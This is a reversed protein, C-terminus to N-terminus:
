KKPLMQSLCDMFYEKFVANIEKEAATFARNEAEAITAHGQRDNFTWSLIASNTATDRLTLDLEIRVFKFNNSGPTERINTNVDFLYRANSGGNRFSLDTIVKTLASNIRNNRDNRVNVGMSINKAVNQLEIRYSYESQIPTPSSYGIARLLNDYKENIGAIITALQYRSYEVLTNRDAYNTNNILNDIIGINALIKDGYIQSAIDKDMLALAYFDNRSSDQWVEKIEAGILEDLSTETVVNNNITSSEMYDTLTGSRIAENYRYTNAQDAKISQGFFASLNALANKEAMDRNMGNGVGFVYRLNGYVSSPNEVWRPQTTSRTVAPSSNTPNNTTPSQGQSRTPSTPLTPSTSTGGGDLRGVANRGAVRSRAASDDDPPAPKPADACASLTILAILVCLIYIIKKYKYM